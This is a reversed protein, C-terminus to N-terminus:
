KSKQKKLNEIFIDEALPHLQFTGTKTKVIAPTRHRNVVFCIMNMEMSKMTKKILATSEKFKAALQRSNLFDSKTFNQATKETM